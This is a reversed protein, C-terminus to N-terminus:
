RQQMKSVMNWLIGDRTPAKVMFWSKRWRVNLNKKRQQLDTERNRLRGRMGKAKKKTSRKIRMDMVVLKHQSVCEEGPIM